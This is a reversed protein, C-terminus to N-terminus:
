KPLARFVPGAPAFRAKSALWDPCYPPSTNVSYLIGQEMAQLLTEQPISQAPDVPPQVDVEPPWKAQLQLYHLPRVTTSDALLISGAPLIKKAEEAFVRAGRYGTKWPHLFYTYEDRYPIHRTLGLEVGMNRAVTPLPWYVLAPMLAAVVLVPFLAPRRQLLQHAGFGIVLSLYVFAPIFFTYQDPVDYRVAWLLYIVLLALIMRRFCRVSQEAHWLLGGLALLALPTPYNLGIYLVSNALQRMSPVVNMVHHRYNGFLASGAVSTLDEGAFIQGAILVLYIAAGLMWSAAALCATSVRVRHSVMLWALVVGWCALSLLAFLHNSVGLGNLGFLLILWVSKATHIYRVFCLLEGTLLATTLTYVEALATHQWFTHAVCLSAASILAGRVQGTVLRSVLFTNAVTVAGFVASVLNTRFASEGFPLYQFAFGCLYYLPHSLALGLDGYLDRRLVRVQALGSDQWLVGPAMTLLYLSLAALLVLLYARGVFHRAGGSTGERAQTM